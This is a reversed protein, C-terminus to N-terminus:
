GFLRDPDGVLERLWAMIEEGWVLSIASAVVIVTAMIVWTRAPIRGEEPVGPIRRRIELIVRTAWAYPLLELGIIIILWGPGPLPLAAIGIGILAFGGVIRALRVLVSRRAEEETEERVGTDLEAEIAADRLIQLLHLHDHHEPHEPHAPDNPDDPDHHRPSAFPDVVEDAGGHDEQAGPTSGSSSM